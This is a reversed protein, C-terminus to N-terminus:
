KMYRQEAKNKKKDNARLATSHSPIEEAKTQSRRLLLRLRLVM